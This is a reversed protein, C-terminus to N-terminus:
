PLVPYWLYRSYTMPIILQDSPWLLNRYISLSPLLFHLIHTHFKQLSVMCLLSRKSTSPSPHCSPTARLVTSDSSPLSLWFITAWYSLFLLLVVTNDVIVLIQFSSAFCTVKTIQLKFYYPQLFIVYPHVVFVLNCCNLASFYTESITIYIHNWRKHSSWAFPKWRTKPPIWFNENLIGKIFPRPSIM